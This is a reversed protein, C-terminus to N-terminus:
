GTAPGMSDAEASSAVDHYHVVARDDSALVAAFQPEEFIARVHTTEVLDLACHQMMSCHSSFPIGRWLGSMPRHYHGFFLHKIRSHSSLVDGLRAADDPEMGITDMAALGTDFPAHHMFIWITERVDLEVDRDVVLGSAHAAGM